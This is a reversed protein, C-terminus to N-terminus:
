GNAWGKLQDIFDGLEEDGEKENHRICIKQMESLVQILDRTNMYHEDGWNIRLTRIKHVVRAM